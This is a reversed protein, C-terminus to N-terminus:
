GLGVAHVAEGEELRVLGDGAPDEQDPAQPHGGAARACVGDDNKRVVVLHELQDRVVVLHVLELRDLRAVADGDARKEHSVRRHVLVLEHRGREFEDLGGSCASNVAGTGLITPASTRCPTNVKGM